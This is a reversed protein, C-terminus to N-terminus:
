GALPRKGAIWLLLTAVAFCLAGVALDAAAPVAAGGLRAMPEVTGAAAADRILAFIALLAALVILFRAFLRGRALAEARIMNIDGHYKKKSAAPLIPAPSPTM